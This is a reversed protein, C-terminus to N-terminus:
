KKSTYICQLFCRELAVSPVMKKHAGVGICFVRRQLSTPKALFIRRNAHWGWPGKLPSPSTKVTSKTGRGLPGKQNMLSPLRLISALAGPDSPERHTQIRRLEGLTSPPWCFKVAARASDSKSQSDGM